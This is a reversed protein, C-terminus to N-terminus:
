PSPAPTPPPVRDEPVGRLAALGRKLRRGGELDGRYFVVLNRDRIATTAPDPAADSASGLAQRTARRGDFVLVTVGRGGRAGVFTALLNVLSPRDPLPQETVRVGTTREVVPGISSPAVIREQVQLDACGGLALLV